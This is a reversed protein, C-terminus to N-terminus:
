HLRFSTTVDRSKTVEHPRVVWACRPNFWDIFVIFEKGRDERRGKYIGVFATDDSVGIFYVNALQM